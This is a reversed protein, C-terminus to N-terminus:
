LPIKNDSHYKYIRYDISKEIVVKNRNRDTSVFHMQWRDDGLFQMVTSRLHCLTTILMDVLAYYTEENKYQDVIHELLVDELAPANKQWKSHTEIINNVVVVIIEKATDEKTVVTNEKLCQGIAQLLLETELDIECVLVAKTPAKLM